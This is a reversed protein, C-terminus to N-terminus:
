LLVCNDGQNVGQKNRSLIFTKIENEAEFTCQFELM